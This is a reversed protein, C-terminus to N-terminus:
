RLVDYNWYWNSSHRRDAYRTFETWLFLARFWFFAVFNMNIRETDVKKICKKVYFPKKKCACKSILFITLCEFTSKNNNLNQAHLVNCVITLYVLRTFSFEYCNTLFRQRHTCEIFSLWLVMLPLYAGSFIRRSFYPNVRVIFILM